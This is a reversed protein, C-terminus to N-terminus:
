RSQNPAGRGLWRFGNPARMDLWRFGNPARRGLWRFGNPARRDLWRFGNPARRGLWRFWHRDIIQGVINVDTTIVLSVNWDCATHVSATHNTRCCFPVTRWYGAISRESRLEDRWKNSAVALRRVADFDPATWSSGPRTHTHVFSVDIPQINNRLIQHRYQLFMINANHDSRDTHTILTWPCPTHRKWWRWM